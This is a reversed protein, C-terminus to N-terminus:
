LWCGKGPLWDETVKEKGIPQLELEEWDEVEATWWAEPSPNEFAERLEMTGDMLAKRQAELLPVVLFTNPYEVMVALMIAGCPAIGTFLLIGDYYELTQWHKIKM